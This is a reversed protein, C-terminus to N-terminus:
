KIISKMVDLCDACYVKGIMDKLADTSNVIQVGYFFGEKFLAGATELLSSRREDFFARM